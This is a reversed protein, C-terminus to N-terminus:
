SKVGVTSKLREERAKHRWIIESVTKPDIGFVLGLRYLSEGKKYRDVIEANRVSKPPRGLPKKAKKEM